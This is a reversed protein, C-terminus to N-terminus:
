SLWNNELVSISTISLALSSVIPAWVSAVLTPDKLKSTRPVYIISGPYVSINNSRSFNKTIKFVGGEMQASTGNPFVVFTNRLDASLNNSGGSEKLYYQIDEGAKYRVSGPNNVQGYVYVQQTIHPVIIEDEDHLITDLSPDERILDLDFEAIIRGSSKTNRLQDLIVYLGEGGSSMNTSSNPSTVINEIFKNYLKEKANNNIIFTKKNNLYGGYPYATEKYGGARLIVNSLTEGDTIEYKGPRKVAGSIEITRYKYEGIFLSDGSEANVSALEDLDNFKILEIENGKYREVAIYSKDATDSLGNAYKILDSFTENDKLEYIGTRRVGISANVLNEYTNVFISDGTRLKPGFTSKGHIFLDYLDITEISKNDRIVEISRYSGDKGVGGAMSLAHLLNSNGGLTYIGPNYANGSILVQIDRVNTLTIFAEAGILSDSVKKKILTSASELSLGSVYVKGIDPINVSGDRNVPIEIILEKQGILQFELIDGFDLVYSSDFNPENIPMFTTQMSKFFKTGFRKDILKNDPAELLNFEPEKEKYYPPIEKTKDVMTSPRSKYVPKKIKEQEEIKKLVDDRVDKPLSELYAEDLELEQSNMFLPFLLLATLIKKNRM